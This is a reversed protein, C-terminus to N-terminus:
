ELAARGPARVLGRAHRLRGWWRRLPPQPAVLGLRELRRQWLYRAREAQPLRALAAAAREAREPRWEPRLVYSVVDLLDQAVVDSVPPLDTRLQSDLLMWPLRLPHQFPTLGMLRQRLGPTQVRAGARELALLEPADLGIALAPTGWRRVGGAEGWEVQAALDRCQWRAVAVQAPTM